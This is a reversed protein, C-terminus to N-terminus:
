SEEWETHFYGPQDIRQYTHSGFFDRQAQILNAPLRASRYADYYALAASMVPLAVGSEVGMVLAARWDSQREALAKVLSDAILLNPLEPQATYATYIDELLASRIICGARWIRAVEALQYNYGFVHSANQLLAFGQAYATIMSAYLAARVATVLRRQDCLQGNPGALIHAAQVREDKLASLVRGDVASTIINLAIGQELASQSTWQGTGKQEAKDLILEVLPKGSDPDHVTFIRATIEVLYSALEGRNWEGFLGALKAADFKGCTSLLAYAEAIAQMIAYEIGNHVMKVYHGAGGPGLYAVCPKGDAPRAAIAQLMPGLQKYSAEPGGPMLSPGRLAGEAGGSIGMGVYHIGAQALAATRLETDRFFSNGGDVIIDGPALLPKLQELMDDVAKGAKVMLLIRRPSDLKSVFDEMSVAAVIKGSPDSQALEVARAVTRNYAAVSYGNRVLNHVLNSGMVAVGILGMDAMVVGGDLSLVSLLYLVHSSQVGVTKYVWTRNQHNFRIM